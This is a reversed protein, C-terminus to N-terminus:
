RETAGPGALPLVLTFVSGQGPQSSVEIRGGHLQALRQASFLGLGRGQIGREDGTRAAGGTRYFPEFLRPLAEAPIGVGQDRVALRAQEGERAVTVEVLGGQPSYKIANTLLNGVIQELKAADWRGVVTGAPPAVLRLEHRETTTQHQDVLRRALEALDVPALELHLPPGMQLQAADLLHDLMSQMADVQQNITRLFVQPDGGRGSQLLRAYGKIVTLPTKLDHVVTAILENRLRVAEEAQTRMVQERVLEHRAQEAQKRSTIDRVLWRLGAPQGDPGLMAGAALAAPFPEKGRPRLPLEVEQVAEGSRLRMLLNRFLRRAEVPVFSILPKGLLLEARLNLLQSAARNAELITGRLDTVLYGDPAFEFLELYRRREQELAEHAQLLEENQARLEEEAVQLEELAGRLEELTRAMPRSRATRSRAPQAGQEARSEPEGARAASM